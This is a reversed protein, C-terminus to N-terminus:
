SELVDFELRKSKTEGFERFCSTPGSRWVRVKVGYRKEFAGVMANTDSLQQSTYLSLGGERKAGEVLLQERPPLMGPM